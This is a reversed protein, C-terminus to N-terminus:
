GDQKDLREKAHFDSYGEPYRQKLKQINADVCELLTLGCEDALAQTYFLLDGIEEKVNEVDLPQNYIWHKKATDGLEGAETAIGLVAHLIRLTKESKDPKAFLRKVNETFDKHM